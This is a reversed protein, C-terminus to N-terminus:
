LLASPRIIADQIPRRAFLMLEVVGDFPTELGEHLIHANLTGLASMAQSFVDAGVYDIADPFPRLTRFAFAAILAAENYTEIIHDLTLAKLRDPRDGRAIVDSVLKVGRMRDRADDWTLISPVM